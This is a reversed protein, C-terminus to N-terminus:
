RKLVAIAYERVLPDNDKRLKKMETLYPTAAAQWNSLALLALRRVNPIPDSLKEALAPLLKQGAAKGLSRDRAVCAAHQRIVIHPSTLGRVVEEVDSAKIQLFSRGLELEQEVYKKIVTSKMALLREVPRYDLALPSVRDSARITLGALIGSVAQERLQPKDLLGFLYEVDGLLHLAIACHSAINGKTTSHKRLAAIVQKTPQEFDALLAAAACGNNPDDLKKILPGIAEIGIALIERQYRFIEELYQALRDKPPRDSSSRPDLSAFHKKFLRSPVSRAILELGGEEDEIYAVFDDTMQPHKAFQRYLQKTVNLLARDFRKKTKQWHSSAGKCAEELLAKEFSDMQSRSPLISSWRWDGPSWKWEEEDSGHEIKLKEMSNIGLSPIAIWGDLESYCEHFALAYVHQKRNKNMWRHVASIATEAFTSEFASWDFM